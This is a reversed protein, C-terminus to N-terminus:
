RAAMPLYFRAPLAQVRLPTLPDGLLAHTRLPEDCCPANQFLEFLSAQALAGMTLAGPNQWLAKYFGRQLYDYSFLIGLGASSWSAIAGGNPALVLQEDISNGGASPLHFSGTLCAMSVVVPLRAGNNLQSADQTTLLYPAGAAQGSTFAWQNTLGHGTYNVVAAGANLLAAVKARATDANPEHWPQTGDSLPEYIVAPMAVGGPQLAMGRQTFADFDGANDYTGDAHRTNDTIFAIRTTWEGAPQTEYAIIKNVVAALEAASKVPLRGFVLDPLSDSLPDDGDLQAFCSECATEGMVRDVDALFPPVWSPPATGTNNLPDYNGDGVLILAYPKVRWVARAHRLFARIAEPSIQGDSWQDYIAQTDVVSANWGLARRHAILPQLAAHLAAPAIYLARANMPKGLDATDRKRIAPEFLTGAGALVFVRPAPGASFRGASDLMVRQPQQADTVDYLAAQAPLGDLQYTWLGPLSEFFAGRQGFTLMAPARWQLDELALAAGTSGLQVAVETSGPTAPVHYDYTWDYTTANQAPQISVSMAVANQGDALMALRTQNLSSGHVTIHILGSAFPLSSHLTANFAPKGTDLRSSFWHDHDPGPLLSDYVSDRQWVGRAIAARTIPGAPLTTQVAMRGGMGPALTLWYTDSNNWRDGPPPAFFRVADARDLVGPAGADLVEIDLPQTKRHLRLQDIPLSDMPVGAEALQAGSLQQMGAEAVQIRWAEDPFAAPPPVREAVAANGAALRSVRQVGQVRATIASASWVVGASSYVPQIGIVFYQAGDLRGSRLITVPSTPLAPLASTGAPAWEGAENLAQRHQTSAAKDAPLTMVTAESAEVTIRPATESQVTLVPIALAEASYAPKSERRWDVVVGDAIDRVQLFDRAPPLAEPQAWTHQANGACIGLAILCCILQTTKSTKNNAHIANRTNV